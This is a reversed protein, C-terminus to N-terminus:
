IHSVFFHLPKGRSRFNSKFNSFPWSSVKSEHFIIRKWTALFTESISRGFSWSKLSIEIRPFLSKGDIWCFHLFIMWIKMLQYVVFARVHTLIPEYSNQKLKFVKQFHKQKTVIIQADYFDIVGEYYYGM